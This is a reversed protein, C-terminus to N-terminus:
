RLRNFIYGAQRARRLRDGSLPGSSRRNPAAAGREGVMNGPKVDRHIYGSIPSRECVIASRADSEGIEHLQKIAYLSHVAVRLITSESLRDVPARGFQPPPLQDTVIGKLAMLDKGMLDM